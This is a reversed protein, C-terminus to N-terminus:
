SRCPYLLLIFPLPTRTANLPAPLFKKTVSRKGIAWSLSTGAMSWSTVLMRNRGRRPSGSSQQRGM